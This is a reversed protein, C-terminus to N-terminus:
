RARSRRILRKVQNVATDLCLTGLYGHVTAPWREPHTQLVVPQPHGVLFAELDDTTRIGAPPTKGRVHDRVNYRAGNWMRGTDTFYLIRDYDISLYAEGALGYAGFDQRKWLDRNDWRSLPSGHMAITAVPALKRLEALQQGFLALARAEDGGAQALTEYHFGIEHGLAAIRRIIAPDFSSRVSRFYYTAKIGLGAEAEAMALSRGPLRDVDHRLVAVRGAPLRPGTALYSEVTSFEYGERQLRRCLAVYRGLYFDM